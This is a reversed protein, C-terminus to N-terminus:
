LYTLGGVSILYNSTEIRCRNQALHLPTMNFKTISNVNAGKNILLKCINIDGNESAYHLATWNGEDCQNPSIKELLILLNNYLGFRSCYLLPSWIDDILINLDIFNDILIKLIESNDFKLAFHLPTKGEFNIVNIPINQSCLFKVIELHNKQCAIHIPQMGNFGESTFDFGRLFFRILIHLHGKETSFHLINNNENDVLSFDIGISDLIDFIEISGGSAAYHIFSRGLSDTATYDVDNQLLFKFINVSGFYSSLSILNPNHNLFPDDSKILVQSNINSNQEFYTIFDKINDNKILEVIM